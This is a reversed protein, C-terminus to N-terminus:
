GVVVSSVVRAVSRGPDRRSACSDFCGGRVKELWGLKGATRVIALRTRLKIAQVGMARPYLMHSHRLNPPTDPKHCNGDGPAEKLKMM